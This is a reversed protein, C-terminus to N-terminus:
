SLDELLLESLPKRQASGKQDPHGIALVAQIEYIDPNVGLAHLTKAQDNLFRWPQNNLGSPAWRGAELIATIDERSVAKETYQRISRRSILNNLVPNDARNM